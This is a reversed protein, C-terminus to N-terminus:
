PALREIVWLDGDRPRALRVYALRDHLRNERGTWFEFREPAVRYGGWYPPRPVVDPFREELRQMARELVDRGEIARSQQSVWAALRHGRPRGEFYANSEAEALKAVSGEIRIQRSLKDWYFLLAARPNAALETGKRSDYNTYFCFGREDWGRLLVTRVSPRGALDCTALAM